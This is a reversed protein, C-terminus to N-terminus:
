THARMHNHTHAQTHTRAIQKETNKPTRTHPARAHMDARSRANLSRLKMGLGRVHPAAARGCELGERAAELDM